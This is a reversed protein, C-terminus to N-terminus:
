ARLPERPEVGRTSVMDGHRFPMRLLSLVQARSPTHTRSGGTVGINPHRFPMRPRSLGPRESPEVGEGFVPGEPRHDVPPGRDGAKTRSCRLYHSSSSSASPVLHVMVACVNSSVGQIIGWLIIEQCVAIVMLKRPLTSTSSSYSSSTLDGETAMFAGATTRRLRGM